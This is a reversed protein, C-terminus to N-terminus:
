CHLVPVRSSALDRNKTVLPLALSEALALSAAEEIVDGADAAALAAEMALARAPFWEQVARVALAFESRARQPAGDHRLALYEALLLSAADLVVIEDVEPVVGELLGALVLLGGVDAVVTPHM